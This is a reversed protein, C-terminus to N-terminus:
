QLDDSLAPASYPQSGQQGMLNRGAFDQPQSSGAETHSAAATDHQAHPCGGRPRDDHVEDVGRVRGQGHIREAEGAGAVFAADSVEDSQMHLGLGGHRLPLTM